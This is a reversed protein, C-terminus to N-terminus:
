LFGAVVVLLVLLLLPDLGVLWNKGDVGGVGFCWGAADGGGAGVTGDSV